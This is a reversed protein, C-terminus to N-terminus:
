LALYRPNEASGGAAVTLDPLIPHKLFNRAARLRYPELARRQETSLAILRKYDFNALKDNRQSALALTKWLLRKGAIGLSLVELSEFLRFDDAGAGDLSLKLELTKEGLWAAVKRPVGTAAPLLRSISELQEQEAEIQERLGGLFDAVPKGDQEKELSRMLTIAAVAGALHDHVYTSLYAEHNM